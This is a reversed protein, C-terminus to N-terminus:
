AKKKSKKSKKPNDDPTATTAAQPQALPIYGQFDYDIGQEALRQRKKQEKEVLRNSIVIQQSLPKPKLHSIL